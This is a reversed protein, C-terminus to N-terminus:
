HAPTRLLAGPTLPLHPQGVGIPEQVKLWNFLRIDQVGRAFLQGSKEKRKRKEKCSKIRVLSETPKELRM